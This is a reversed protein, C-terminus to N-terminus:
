VECTEKDSVLLSVAISPPSPNKTHEELYANQRCRPLMVGMIVEGHWKLEGVASHCFNSM